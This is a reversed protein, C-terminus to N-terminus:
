TSEPYERRLIEAVKRRLEPVDETATDWVVSWDVSFYAHVAINRFGVVDGWPIGDHDARFESSIRSAAEGIVTIKQLVAARVLENQLFQEYDIGVLFREITEAADVIDSLFLEERRM